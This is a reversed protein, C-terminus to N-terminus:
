KAEIEWNRSGGSQWTIMMNLHNAYPFPARDVLVFLTETDAASAFNEQSAESCSPERKELPIPNGGWGPRWPLIYDPVREARWPVTGAM